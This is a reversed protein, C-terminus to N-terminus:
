VGPALLPFSLLCLELHEEEVEVVPIEQSELTFHMTYFPHWQQLKFVVARFPKRLTSRKWFKVERGLGHDGRIWILIEIGTKKGESGELAEIRLDM